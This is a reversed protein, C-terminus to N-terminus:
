WACCRFRLCPEDLAESGGFLQFERTAAEEAVDLADDVTVIGILVGRHRHGAATRDRPSCRRGLGADTALAVFRRDM